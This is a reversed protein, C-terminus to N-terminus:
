ISAKVNLVSIDIIETKARKFCRGVFILSVSKAAKKQLAM